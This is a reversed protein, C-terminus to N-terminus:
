ANLGAQIAFGFTMTLNNSMAGDGSERVCVQCEARLGIWPSVPSSPGYTPKLSTDFM